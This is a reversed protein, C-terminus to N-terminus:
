EIEEEILYRKLYEMDRGAKGLNVMRSGGHGTVRIRATPGAQTPPRDNGDYRRHRAVLERLIVAVPCSRIQPDYHPRPHADTKRPRTARSSARSFSAGGPYATDTRRVCHRRRRM